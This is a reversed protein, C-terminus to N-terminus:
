TNESYGVRGHKLNEASKTAPSVILAFAFSDVAGNQSLPVLNLCAERACGDNPLKGLLTM